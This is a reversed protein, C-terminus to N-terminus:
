EQNQKILSKEYEEVRIAKKCVYRMYIISIFGSIFYVTTLAFAAGNIGWTKIAFIDLGAHIGLFVLNLVLNFREHGIAVLINGAIGRFICQALSAFLMMRTLPIASYYDPGYVLRIVPGVVIFVIIHLVIMLAANAFFLKKYHSWVWKKDHMHKTFYPFVFVIFSSTIFYTVQIPFNAVKYDALAKVDRVIKSLIQTENLLMIISMSSELSFTAGLRIMKFIESRSLKIAKARFVPTKTYWYICFILTVAAAIYRGGIIGFLGAMLGCVIQMVITMSSYIFSSHSFRKNDLTARFFLQFDAMLFTIPPLLCTTFLLFRAGPYDLSIQSFVAIAITTAIANFLLGIKMSMNFYAKKSEHGRESACYRMVVNTMGLGNFIVLYSRVNDTYLLLGYTPKDLLNPLFMASSVGILQAFTSSVVINLLGKGKMLKLSKKIQGPASLIRKKIMQIIQGIM